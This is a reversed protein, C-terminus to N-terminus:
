AVYWSIHRMLVLGLHKHVRIDSKTASATQVTRGGVATQQLASSHSEGDPPTNHHIVQQYGLVSEIRIPVYHTHCLNDTVEQPIGRTGTWLMFLLQNSRPCVANQFRRGNRKGWGQNHRLYIIEAIEM